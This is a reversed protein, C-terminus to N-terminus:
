GTVQGFVYLIIGVLASSALTWLALKISHLDNAQDRIARIMLARQVNESQSEIGQLPDAAAM